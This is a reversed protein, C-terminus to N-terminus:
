FKLYFDKTLEQYEKTYVHRSIEVSIETKEIKEIKETSFLLLSRKTESHINGKVHTIKQLFLHNQEALKVFIAEHQFPIIVSFYGREAILENTCELLFEFPLSQTFRALNRKHQNSFITETFFPPNSIILDYKTTTKKKFEKIDSLYCVLRDNFISQKFNSVCEEFAEKDIEVAHIDASTRQAMMLSLIGTGAGIDLIKKPQFCSTWAGLLVSDTGVKMANKEQKISFQKFQFDKM